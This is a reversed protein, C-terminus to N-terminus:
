FHFRYGRSVNGMYSVRIFRFYSVRFDIDSVFGFNWFEFTEFSFVTTVYHRPKDGGLAQRSDGM